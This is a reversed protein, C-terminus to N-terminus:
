ARSREMAAREASPLWLLAVLVYLASLGLAVGARALDLGGATAFVGRVVDM